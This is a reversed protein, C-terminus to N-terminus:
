KGIVDKFLEEVQKMWVAGSYKNEAIKRIQQPDFEQWKFCMEELGQALSEENPECLLGVNEAVIEEPGGCKTSLVPKGCAMAEVLVIGFTEHRSALAFFSCSQMESLVESKSLSGLWTVSDSIGLSMALKQYSRLQTGGGGIRLEIDNHSLKSFAWLLMDIGKQDEMRGISLIITKSSASRGSPSFYNTDVPNPLVHINSLGFSKMKNRLSQSTAILADAQLLPERILRKIEGNKIFEAFPFPSMHATVVFPINFEQSLAKGIIAGPYAAHVSIVDPKGHDVIFRELSKRNARIIGTINGKKFRRTWTFAPTFYVGLNDKLQIDEFPYKKLAKLPSRWDLARLLFREDGQGWTSIGITWDPRNNALIEAQEQNFIGYIPNSTSPYWSPIIFVNM